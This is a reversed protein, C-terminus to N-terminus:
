SSRKGRNPSYTIAFRALIEPRDAFALGAWKRVEKTAERLHAFAQKELRTLADLKEKPTNVASWLETLDQHIELAQDLLAPTFKKYPAFAPLHQKYLTPIALLDGMLDHVGQDKKIEALQERAGPITEFAYDGFQFLRRRLATGEEKCQKLLERKAPLESVVADNNAEAVVYANARSVLSDIHIPNIGEDILDQRYENAVSFLITADTLYNASGNVPKEFRDEGITSFKPLERQYDELATGM